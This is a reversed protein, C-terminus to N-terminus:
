DEMESKLKKSYAINREMRSVMDNKEILLSRMYSDSSNTWRNERHFNMQWEYHEIIIDIAVSYADIADDFRDLQNLTDGIWEWIIYDDIKRHPNLSQKFLPLAEEYMGAYYYAKAKDKIILRSNSIELVKDYWEIAELYKGEDMLKRIKQSYFSRIKRKREEQIEFEISKSGTKEDDSSGSFTTGCSCVNSGLSVYSGCNPCYPMNDRM